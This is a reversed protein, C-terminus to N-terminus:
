GVERLAGVAAGAEAGPDAAVVAVREVAAVGGDPGPLWLEHRGPRAAGRRGDTRVEVKRATLHGHGDGLGEWASATVTLRVDPAEPWTGGGALVVVSGRERARAVLRRADGARVRAPPRVLTVDVADVVSAVVQGWVAAPPPAVLAFRGLCVGLEAAALVGLAPFGVAVVWSGAASPGAALALALSTAATGDVAVVAGRRLGGEPLLPGLAPTVALLHEGALSV